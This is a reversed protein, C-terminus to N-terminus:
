SQILIEINVRDDEKDILNHKHLVEIIDKTLQQTRPERELLYAGTNILNEAISKTQKNAVRVESLVRKRM